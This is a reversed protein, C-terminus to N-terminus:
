YLYKRVVMREMVRVLVPTISIPRFHSNDTPNKPKPYSLDLGKEVTIASSIQGAIRQLGVAKRNTQRFRCRGTTSVM